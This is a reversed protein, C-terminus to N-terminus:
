KAKTSIHNNVCHNPPLPYLSITTRSYTHHTHHLTPLSHSAHQQSRWIILTPPPSVHCVRQLHRPVCPARVQQQWGNSPPFWCCKYGQCLHLHCLPIQSMLGEACDGFDSGAQRKLHRASAQIQGSWRYGGRSESQYYGTPRWYHNPSARWTNFPLRSVFQALM